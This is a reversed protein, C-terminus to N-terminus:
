LIYGKLFLECLEYATFYNVFRYDTFYNVFNMIRSIILLGIGHILECVEYGTFYNM